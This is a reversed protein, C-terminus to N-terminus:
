RKEIAIRIKKIEEISLGTLESVTKDAFGKKIMNMTPIKLGQELGQELGQRMGEKLASKKIGDNYREIEERLEEYDNIYKADEKPLDQKLLRRILETFIKDKTYEDFDSKKNLRNLTREAITFWAAYKEFKTNKVINKQFAFILRNKQLFSLEKTNNNFLNVIEEVKKKVNKNNWVRTEKFFQKTREPLLTFSVYDDDFGLNDDVMWILTIVPILGTYDKVQKIKGNPFLMSKVPLDELQLATNLTHYTYFRFIVDSKYWQQMDIIVYQNDIKCRFDFEVQRSADTIKNTLKMPKIEQIEVDLFDELFRKAIKLDSFVKKFYRDYNLPALYM